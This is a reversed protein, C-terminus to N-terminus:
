ETTNHRNVVGSGVQSALETFRPDSRVPDYQPDRHISFLYPSQEAVAEALWEFFKGEDGVGLYGWALMLPSVYESAMRESLDDILELAKDRLGARGYWMALGAKWFNADNSLALAREGIRVAEDLRFACSYGWGLWWVALLYQPDREVVEELTRIGGETDGAYIKLVGLMATIYCSLPDIKLAIALHEFAEALRGQAGCLVGYWAYAEANGPSLEIARQFEKESLDWEFGFFFHSWGLSAHAESLGEDLELARSVAAKGKSRGEEPPLFGYIGLVTYCDAIGRYALAFSPDVEVAKQFYKLAAELGIKYRQDWYHRGRLYHDYAEMSQTSASVLRAVPEGLLTPRLADVISRSIEDQIAFVDELQREYTESWLHYGDEATVLQATVRLRDGARRVSGELVSRVGLSRAIERVDESRGKFQFSSTRAAVRLEKVKTLANILEEAMGDCFYEQDKEPSMDTFPLVAISAPQPEAATAAPEVAEEGVPGVAPELAPTRRIGEPTIELAWALLLAIPFGIIVVVVVFTLVWEPLHLAPFTIEAVQWIVFAVVAYVVGVRYVKRRKLEALLHGLKSAREGM